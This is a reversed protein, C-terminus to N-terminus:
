LGATIGIQWAQTLPSIDRIASPKLCATNQAVLAEGIRRSRAGQKGPM